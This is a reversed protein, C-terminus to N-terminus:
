RSLLFLYLNKFIISIFLYESFKMALFALITTGKGGKKEGKKTYNIIDFIYLSSILGIFYTFIIITKESPYLISSESSIIFINIIINIFIYLVYLGSTFIRKIRNM